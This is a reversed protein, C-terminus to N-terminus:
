RGGHNRRDSQTVESLETRLYNREDFAYPYQFQEGEWGFRDV